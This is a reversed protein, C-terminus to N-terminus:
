KQTEELVEQLADTDNRKIADIANSTNKELLESNKYSAEKLKEFTEIKEDIVESSVIEEDDLNIEMDKATKFFLSNFISPTVIEYDSVKGKVESSLVKLKDKDIKIDVDQNEM